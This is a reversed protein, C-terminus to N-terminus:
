QTSVGNRADVFAKIAEESWATIRVSLKTSKLMGAKTLRWVTSESISLMQAVEKDRYYKM